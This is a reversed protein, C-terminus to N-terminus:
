GEEVVVPLRLVINPLDKLVIVLLESDLHTSLLYLRVDELEDVVKDGVPATRVLGLHHRFGKLTLQRRRTLRDVKGMKLVVLIQLAEKELNRCPIDTQYLPIPLNDPFKDRVGEERDAMLGEENEVGVGLIPLYVENWRYM